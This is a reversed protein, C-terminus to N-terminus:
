LYEVLSRFTQRINSMMKIEQNISTMSDSMAEKLQLEIEPFFFDCFIVILDMGDKHSHNTLFSGYEFSDLTSTLYINPYEDCAKELSYILGYRIIRFGNVDDENSISDIKENAYRLQELVQEKSIYTANPTTINSVSIKGSCDILYLLDDYIIFDLITDNHSISSIQKYTHLDWVKISNDSSFTSFINANKEIIIKKVAQKHALIESKPLAGKNIRINGKEYGILIKKSESAISTIPFPSSVYSNMLHNKCTRIDKIDWVVFAGSKTGIIIQNQTTSFHYSLLEKSFPNRFENVLEASVFDWVSINESGVIFITNDDWFDAGVISTNLQIKKSAGDDGFSVLSISDKSCLLVTDKNKFYTISTIPDTDSIKSEALKKHNKVDWLEIINNSLVILRDQEKSFAANSCISSQWTEVIKM